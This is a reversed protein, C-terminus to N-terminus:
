KSYFRGLLSFFKISLTTISIEKEKYPKVIGNAYQYFVKVSYPITNGKIFQSIFSYRWPKPSGVAHTMLWGGGVFDMGDPGFESIPVNSCMATLNLLDQDGVKFLNYDENSQFFLKKDFDFKQEAVDILGQWMHLFEIDRKAMGIFGANINSSLKNQVRFGAENAVTQWMLRKPHTSPMDNWVIEHVLAVGFYVWREFFDWNAKIIIDPDFYYIFDYKEKYLSVIKLMFEPKYNTFHTDTTLPLFIIQFNNDIELLKADNWEFGEWKVLTSAWIPLTGRFGVFVSGRFKKAHLSNLLGALGYHYDGEFLTCIISKM